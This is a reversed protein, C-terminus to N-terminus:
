SGALAENFGGVHVSATRLIEDVVIQQPGVAEREIVVVIMKVPAVRKQVFDFSNVDVPGVADQDVVVRNMRQIQGKVRRRRGGDVLFSLFRTIQEPGFSSVAHDPFVVHVSVLGDNQPLFIRTNLIEDKEIGVHLFSGVIARIRLFEAALVQTQRSGGAGNAGTRIAHGGVARTTALGDGVVRRRWNTLFILELALVFFAYGLTPQAVAVVVTAVFGVFVVPRAANAAFM